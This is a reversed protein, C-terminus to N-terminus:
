REGTRRRYLDLVFENEFRADDMQRLRADIAQFTMADTVLKAIAGLVFLLGLPKSVAGMVLIGGFLAVLSALVRSSRQRSPDDSKQFWSRGWYLSHCRYGQNRKRLGEVRHALLIPISAFWFVFVGGVEPDQTHFTAFLLPWFFGLVAHIGLFRTGWTGLRTTIILVPFAMVDMLGIMLNFNSRFDGGLSQDHQPQM